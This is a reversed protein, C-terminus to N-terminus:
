PAYIDLLLEIGRKGLAAISESSIALDENSEVMFFGCHFDIEFKDSLLKWVTMDQTTKTLIESIQSDIDGPERETAELRWSGTKAIQERGTVPEKYIQGKFESETPECGLARSVEEPM